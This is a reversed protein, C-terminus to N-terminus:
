AAAVNQLIMVGGMGGAACISILGYRQGTRRLTNALSGVIRGGTAAFPHGVAISSGSCLPLGDFVSESFDPIDIHRPITQRSEGNPNIKERPITGVAKDKGLWEKAFEDSELCALTALVQAAFAEHIEFVDIDDITLGAKELAAPIALAPALLLQPYPDVATKAYSCVVIDTNYGAAVAAGESMVLVASAGDTLASSSAATVTGAGSGDVGAAEEAEGEKRFVGNLRALQETTM